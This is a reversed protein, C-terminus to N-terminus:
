ARLAIDPDFQLDGSHSLVGIRQGSANEVVVVPSASQAGRVFKLSWGFNQVRRLGARQRETLLADIDAPIASQKSRKDKNMIM